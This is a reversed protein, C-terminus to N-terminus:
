VSYLKELAKALLGSIILRSKPNRERYVETLKKADECPYEDEYNEIIDILKHDDTLVTIPSVPTRWKKGSYKAELLKRLIIDDKEDEYEIIIKYYQSIYHAIIIGHM